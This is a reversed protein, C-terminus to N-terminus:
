KTKQPEEITQEPPVLTSGHTILKSIDNYFVLVMLFVIFLLGAHTAVERVKGTVPKRTVAEICFFMLHGGDLIPIPLLNIIALNISIFSLIFLYNFYGHKLSQGSVEIITLPGGLAKASVELKVLRVLLEFVQGTLHLSFRWGEVFSDVVGLKLMTDSPAIGIRGVHNGFLDKHESMRPVVQLTVQEGDRDVVVDLKREPHAEILRRMDDWRTVKTGGVSVVRDGALFGAEQAPQGELVRGVEAARVPLGTLYGFSLLVVALLYNSVPGAAIIAMRALLPKNTFARHKEELAVEEESEQDEGLLKVYGGLPIWSLVYETEGWKRKVLSPPFGLSFKLVNVGLAKAVIFHGFEHVFILVGLLIIFGVIYELM